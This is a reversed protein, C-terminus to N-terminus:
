PASAVYIPLPGTLPYCVPSLDWFAPGLCIGSNSLTSATVQKSYVGSISNIVPELGFYAPASATIVAGTPASAAAGLGDVFLTVTSNAPAPNGCGNLTGDPNIALLKKQGAYQGPCEGPTLPIEFYSPAVPAISAYALPAANNPFQPLTPVIEIAVYASSSAYDAVEAPVQVNIQEPSVYLVPAPVGNFTISIGAASIPYFGNEPQTAVTSPALNTGLISLLEGPVIEGTIVMDASHALCAAQPPIDFNEAYFAPGVLV